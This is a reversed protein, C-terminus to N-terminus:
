GCVPGPRETSRGLHVWLVWLLGLWACRERQEDVRPATSPPTRPIHNFGYVSIEISFSSCWFAFAPNGRLATPIRCVSRATYDTNYLSIPWNHRSFVGGGVGRARTPDPTTAEKPDLDLDNKINNKLIYLSCSYRVRESCRSWVACRAAARGSASAQAWRGGM